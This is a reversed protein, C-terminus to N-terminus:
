GYLQQIRQIDDVALRFTRPDRYIYRPYMISDLNRSHWLGVSHGVEHVAVLFLNFGRHSTSWHESRDFHVVGPNGSDPLFAHGLIGGPGDFPWGDGHDFEWFSIKIDANENRVQQFTLSTVNSWVTVADRMIDKVTSPNMDKPYNIISYTLTHKKWKSNRHFYSDNAGDAVGCHPEKLFEPMQKRLLDTEEQRFQQLLQLQEEQTLLPSEEKNLLFQHIYDKVVDLGKPDASPPVPLALCWPLFIAAKLIAPAM